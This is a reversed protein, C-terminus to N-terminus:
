KFSQGMLLAVRELVERDEKTFAKLNESEATIVGVVKESQSIIPVVIESKTSHFTPLYRPDKHVDNVVITERSEVAAGCLGQTAPFQPYCVPEDDSGAIIVLDGRVLKYVGVWRWGRAGCIMQMMQKVAEPGKAGALIFGGLQQLMAITAPDKM